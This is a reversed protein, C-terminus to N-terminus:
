RIGPRTRCGTRLQHAVLRRSATKGCLEMGARFRGGRGAGGGGFRPRGEHLSLLTRGSGVPSSVIPPKLEGVRGAREAKAPLRGLPAPVALAIGRDRDLQCPGSSRPEAGQPEPWSYLCPWPRIRGSVLRSLRVRPMRSKKVSVALAGVWRSHFNEKTQPNGHIRHRESANNPQGTLVPFRAKVRSFDCPLCIVAGLRSCGSTHRGERITAIPGM